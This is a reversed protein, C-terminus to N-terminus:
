VGQVSSLVEWGAAEDTMTVTFARLALFARASTDPNLAGFGLIGLTKAPPARPIESAAFM